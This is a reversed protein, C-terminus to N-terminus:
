SSRAPSDKPSPSRILIVVKADKDEPHEALHRQKAQEKTEGPKVLIITIGRQRGGELRELRKKISAM